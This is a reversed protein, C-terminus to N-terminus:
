GDNEENRENVEAGAAQETEAAALRKKAARMFDGRDLMVSRGCKACRIRIDAGTRTIVWENGGCAHKKRMEVRDGLGFETLM